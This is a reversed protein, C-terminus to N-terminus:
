EVPYVVDAPTTTVSGVTNFYERTVTVPANYQLSATLTWRSEYQQEGTILPAQLGENCYLPKVGEPWVASATAYGSRLMTQAITCMEAAQGDYFDMQIDLRAPMTHASYLMSVPQTVQETGQLVPEPGYAVPVQVDGVTDTVRTTSMSVRNIETLVICPPEPQPVRNAQARVIQTGAPMLPQLFDALAVIAQDVTM